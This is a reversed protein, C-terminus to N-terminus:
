AYPSPTSAIRANPCNGAAIGWDARVGSRCHWVSSSRGSPDASYGHVFLREAGKWGFASGWRGWNLAGIPNVRGAQQDAVSGVSRSGPSGSPHLGAQNTIATRPYCSPPSTGHALPQGIAEFPGSDNSPLWDPICVIWLGDKFRNWLISIWSELIKFMLLPRDLM